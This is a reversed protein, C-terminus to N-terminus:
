EYNIGLETAASALRPDATWQTVRAAIPPRM